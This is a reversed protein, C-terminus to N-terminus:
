RNAAELTYRFLEMLEIRQLEELLLRTDETAKGSEQMSIIDVFDDTNWGDDDRFRKLANVIPASSLDDLGPQTSLWKAIASRTREKVSHRGAQRFWYKSNWFDQEMRHMIAHWYSGTADDEIQQAYSHSRDLSDNRLHLGAMLAIDQKNAPPHKKGLKVIDEDLSADWVQAPSLPATERREDLRKVITLLEEKM